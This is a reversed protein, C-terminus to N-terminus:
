PQLKRAAHREKAGLSRPQIRPTSSGLGGQQDLGGASGRRDRNEFDRQSGAADIVGDCGLGDRADRAWENPCRGHSSECGYAEKAIKLRSQSRSQCVSWLWRPEACDHWRRVCSESPARDWTGGSSGGTRHARKQCVVANYAVCCPETLCAQEFPLAKPFRSALNELHSAFSVQTM